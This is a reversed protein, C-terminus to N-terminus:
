NCTAHLVASSLNVPIVNAQVVLGGDYRQKLTGGKSITLGPRRAHYRRRVFYSRANLTLLHVEGRLKYRLAVAADCELYGNVAM